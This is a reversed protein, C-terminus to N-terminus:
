GCAVAADAWDARDWWNDADAQDVVLRLTRAGTVDVTVQRPQEGALVTDSTYLKVRRRLCPVRRRRARRSPGHHRRNRGVRHVPHVRGCPHLDRDRQLQYGPGKCPYRRGTPDIGGDGGATEGNHTDREWPGYDGTSSAFPLDSLYHSGAGPGSPPPTTDLSFGSFQALGRGSGAATMFLGVDSAANSAVVVSGVTTWTAGDGSCEATYRNGDRGIRMHVSGRFATANTYQDLRGDGNPDSSLVCGNAPTLALNLFGATGQAALREPRRHRGEGVSRHQGARDRDDDGPWRLHTCRTPLDDGFENTGGWM